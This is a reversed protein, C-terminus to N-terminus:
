SFPFLECLEGKVTLTDVHLLSLLELSKLTSHDKEGLPRIVDKSKLKDHIEEKKLTRRSDRLDERGGEISLIACCM